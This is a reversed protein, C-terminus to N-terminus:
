RVCRVYLANTKASNGLNGYSFDLYFAQTSTVPYSTSSWYLNSQGSPFYTRDLAPVATRTEDVLTELENRNPLRWDTQSGHNLAECYALAAEWTTLATERQDWVLGTALDTVTQNGNDALRTGAWAPAALLLLLALLRLTRM